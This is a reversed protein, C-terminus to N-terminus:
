GKLKWCQEIDFVYWFHVFISTNKALKLITLPYSLFPFLLYLPHILRPLHLIDKFRAIHFIAMNVQFDSNNEAHRIQADYVNKM